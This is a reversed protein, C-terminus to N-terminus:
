RGHLLCGLRGMRHAFSECLRYEAASGHAVCFDRLRNHQWCHSHDRKALEDKGQSLDRRWRVFHGEKWRWRQWVGSFVETEWADQLSLVDCLGKDNVGYCVARGFSCTRGTEAACVFQLLSVRGREIGAAWWGKRPEICYNEWVVLLHWHARELISRGM